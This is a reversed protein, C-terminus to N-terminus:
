RVFATGAAPKPLAIPRWGPPTGRPKRVLLVVQEGDASAKTVAPDGVAPDTATRVSRCGTLYGIQIAGRGVVVCRARVGQAVLADAQARQAALIPELVGTVRGMSAVQAVIHVALAVPVLVRAVGRWGSVVGVAAPIMMLAYAPQLFRTNAYDFLFLYPLALAVACVLALGCAYRPARTVVPVSRRAPGSLALADLGFGVSARPLAVMPVSRRAPGSLALADLGFGVSARPLAVMPAALLGAVALVPVVFWWAVEPWHVDACVQAPRCLLNPGDVAELHRWLIFGFGADNVEAGARLRALPNDFRIFAEAVWVAWGVALGAAVAVVAPVYRRRRLGAPVLPALLLPIALAASDTPRLLSAAAFAVAVGILPGRRDPEGV